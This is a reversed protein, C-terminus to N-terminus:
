LNLSNDDISFSYGFSFEASWDASSFKVLGSCLDSFLESHLFTQQELHDFLFVSLVEFSKNLVDDPDIVSIHKLRAFFGVLRWFSSMKPFELNVFM